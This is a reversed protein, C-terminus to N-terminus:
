VDTICRRPSGVSMAQQINVHWRVSESEPPAQKTHTSHVSVRYWQRATGLHAVSANVGSGVASDLALPPLSIVSGESTLSPDAVGSSSELYVALVNWISPTAKLQRSPAQGTKTAPIYLVRSWRETQEYPIGSHVSLCARAEFCILGKIGGAAM